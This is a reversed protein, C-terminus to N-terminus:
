RDAWTLSSKAKEYFICAPNCKTSKVPFYEFSNGNEHKVLLGAEVLKDLRGDENPLECIGISVDDWGGTYFRNQRYKCTNRKAESNDKYLKNQKELEDLKEKYLKIKDNNKQFMAAYAKANLVYKKDLKTDIM